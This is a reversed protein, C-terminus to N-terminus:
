PQIVELVPGSKVWLPETQQYFEGDALFSYPEEARVFLASATEIRAPSVAINWGMAFPVIGKVFGRPTTNIRMTRFQGAPIPQRQFGKFEWMNDVGSAYVGVFEHPDVAVGNLSVEGRWTRMARRSFEGNILASSLMRAAVRRVGWPGRWTKRAYEQTLFSFVGIGFNFAVREGICLTALDTKRLVDGRALGLKLAEVTALPDLSGVARAIVGITGGHLPLIRPLEGRPWLRVVEQVVQHFAGDGGSVVLLDVGQERWRRLLLPLEEASRTEATEGLPEFLRRLLLRQAPHKANFWANPNILLAPRLVESM